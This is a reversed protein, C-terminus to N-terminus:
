TRPLGIYGRLRLIYASFTSFWTGTFTRGHSTIVQEVLGRLNPSIETLGARGEYDSLFKVQYRDFFPKFFSRDTEDTSIYVVEGDEL